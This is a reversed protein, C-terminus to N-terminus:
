FIMGICIRPGEGFPLHAYQNRNAKNEVSFRDPDFKTPDEYIESDYHISKVPIMIKTGKEIIVDTDPIKYEQVCERTLFPLPPYKRLTELIFIRYYVLKM